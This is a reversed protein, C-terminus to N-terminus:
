GCPGAASCCIPASLKLSGDLLGSILAVVSWVNALSVTGALVLGVVRPVPSPHAVRRHPNVVFLAGLVVLELSPLLWHPSPTLAAPLAYQIGVVLLLGITVAWRQEGETARRWAPAHNVDHSM